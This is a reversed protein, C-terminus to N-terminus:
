WRYGAAGSRRRRAPKGAILQLVSRLVPLTAVLAPKGLKRIEPKLLYVALNQQCREDFILKGTAAPDRIFVARVQRGSGNAYGIVM